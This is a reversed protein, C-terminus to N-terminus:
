FHFRLGGGVRGYLDFDSMEDIASRLEIFGSLKFSDPKEYFKYGIDFIIDLDNDETDLDSDGGTLWAGLGIGAYMKSWNYNLMIDVVFATEGDIGEVKPAVGVLGLLSLNDALTYEVGGRFLLYHAPDAQYLYGADAIFAIPSAAAVPVPAPAPEPAPEPQPAPAPAAVPMVPAPIPGIGMLALNGCVLPVVFTYRQGNYDVFFQYGTFPTDSEWVVGKDIMVPGQGKKRYFMWELEQGKQYEVEAVEANPLQAMLPEYLEGLGAKQMGKQVDSKHEMFMNKMQEVSSLPPQYFPNDGFRTIAGANIALGALMFLLVVSFLVPRMKM